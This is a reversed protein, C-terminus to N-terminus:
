STRDLIVVPLFSFFYIHLMYNHRHSISTQYICKNALRRNWRQYILSFEPNQQFYISFFQIRSLPMDINIEPIVYQTDFHFRDTVCETCGCLEVEQLIGGQLSGHRGSVSIAEDVVLDLFLENM